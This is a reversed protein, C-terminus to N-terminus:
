PPIEGELERWRHCAVRRNEEALALGPERARCPERVAACRPAFRCGPPLDIASPPDDDLAPPALEGAADLHPAAALLARTYPHLPRAFLRATPAEEVIRGLYMIAVRACAARVVSLDHSIFLCTLGLRTRLEGILAVITAQVSLDLGATPEDLVLVRPRLVLARAIGIRRLQGGSLEHPYRRALAADLGVAALTEDIIRRRATAEREGAARLSEDLTSGVRWWPDLAAASDQWVYQVSRRAARAERPALGSVLRGDLRIEGGTERQLGVLTRALTTKGCGSEGVLGLMEGPALTLSVGDVARVLPPRRALLRRGGGLHVVLDRLEVAPGTSM